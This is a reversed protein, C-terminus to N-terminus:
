KQQTTCCGGSMPKLCPFTPAPRLVIASEHQSIVGGTIRPFGVGRWPLTKTKLLSLLRQHECVQRAPFRPIFSLDLRSGISNKSPEFDGYRREAFTRFRNRARDLLDSRRQRVLKRRELLHRLEHETALSPEFRGSFENTRIYVGKRGNLFHPALDSEATYIAYCVKGSAAPTPIPDSVEIQIPPAVSTFCWDVLKQKYGPEVDVGPLGSIRGDASGAQAGIIVYGGFTNAFSSIKKLTEDKDPVERKFELRINEVSRDSLLEGLDHSSIHSVPNAFISM